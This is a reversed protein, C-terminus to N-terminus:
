PRLHSIANNLDIFFRKEFATRELFLDSAKGLQERLNQENDAYWDAYAEDELPVKKGIKIFL